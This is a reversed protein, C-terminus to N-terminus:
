DEIFSRLADAIYGCVCDTAGSSASFEGDSIAVFDQYLKYLTSADEIVFKVTIPAFDVAERTVEVQM